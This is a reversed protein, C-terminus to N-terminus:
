LHRPPLSAKAAPQCSSRWQGSSLALALLVLMLSNVWFDVGLVLLLRQVQSGPLLPLASNIAATSILIVRVKRSLAGAGSFAYLALFAAPWCLGIFYIKSTLPGVMLILSVMFGLELALGIKSNDGSRRWILALGAAFLASAMVEWLLIASSRSISVLNVARYNTDGDVRNWYEVETLYRILQGKLSLNIPGNLEHFEQNIIVHDYWNGLLRLNYRFGFYIAPAMNMVVLWIAVLGLFKWRRRLAFYPLALIPTLKITISLSMLPSAALQRGSMFLYFSAFLLATALLHANGYHLMMVFYQGSLLLSTFFVKRSISASWREPSAEKLARGLASVIAAISLAGILHWIHAAIGYPLKWLPALLLLFLPPYRYDMVRGLAFDPAYLDTRGALLSRGAAYYVPFDIMNRTFVLGLPALLLMLAIAAKRRWIFEVAIAMPLSAPPPVRVRM